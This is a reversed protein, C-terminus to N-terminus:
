RGMKHHNIHEECAFSKQKKYVGPAVIVERGCVRCPVKIKIHKNNTGNALLIDNIELMTKGPYYALLDNLYINNM